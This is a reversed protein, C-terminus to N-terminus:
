FWPHENLMRVEQRRKQSFIKTEAVGEPFIFHNERFACVSNSM